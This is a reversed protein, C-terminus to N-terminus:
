LAAKKSWLLFWEYLTPNQYAPIWAAHGDGPVDDCDPTRSYRTYQYAADSSTPDDRYTVADCQLVPDPQPPAPTLAELLPEMAGDTFECPCMRDNAGHFAWVKCGNEFVRAHDVATRASCVPAAAAFWGTEAARFSGLGGMSCGTVYLRQQDIYNRLPAEGVSLKKSADEMFATMFSDIEKAQWAERVNVCPTRPCLVFFKESLVKPCKLTVSNSSPRFTHRDVGMNFGGLLYPVLGVTDPDFMGLPDESDGSEGLGHLFLLLPHKKVEKEALAVPSFLLYGMAAETQSRPVIQVPSVSKALLEAASVGM